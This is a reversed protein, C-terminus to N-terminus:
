EAALHHCVCDPQQLDIAARPALMLRLSVLHPPRCSCRSSQICVLRQSSQVSMLRLRAPPPCCPSRTSAASQSRAPVCLLSSLISQLQQCAPPSHCSNPVGPPCLSAPPSPCSSRRARLLSSPMWWSQTTWLTMSGHQCYLETQDQNEEQLAPLPPLLLPM